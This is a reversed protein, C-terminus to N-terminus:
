RLRLSDTTKRKISFLKTMSNYGLLLTHYIQREVFFFMEIKNNHALTQTETYAEKGYLPFFKVVRDSFM